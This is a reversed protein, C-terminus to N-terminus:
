AKRLNAPATAVRVTAKPDPQVWAGRREMATKRSHDAHCAGWLNEDSEDGGNQIPIVHDVETSSGYGRCLVAIQCIPDRALIRPRTGYRWASSNYIKRRDADLGIGNAVPVRHVPARAPM